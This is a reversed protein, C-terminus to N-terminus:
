LVVQPQMVVVTPPMLQGRRGHLPWRRALPTRYSHDRDIIVDLGIEVAHEEQIMTVGEIARALNAQPCLSVRNGGKIVEDHTPHVGSSLCIERLYRRSLFGHIPM